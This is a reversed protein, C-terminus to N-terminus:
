KFIKREWTFWRGIYGLDNRNCDELTLRFADMQRESRLRGCKKEFSSVIENFDGLVVWHIAQDHSLHRLLEWSKRRNREESNGYFGTLRWAVDCENDRIDIDIYFSSFSRLSVLSNGNWGLSSGGRSGMAGFDIGNEFGCRLRVRKM